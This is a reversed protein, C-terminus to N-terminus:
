PRMAILPLRAGYGVGGRRGLVRELVARNYRQVIIMPLNALVAYAFMVGCAWPPNWLFFIPFCFLMCWHAFEARRTEAVFTRLYAASHGTLKKKAFGGFWSAGDPLMRKWRRVALWDEYVRGEREWGRVRYLWGGEAFREAPLALCVRAIGLQIVPWGLVNAAWVLATM